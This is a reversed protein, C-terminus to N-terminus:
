HSEKSITYKKKPKENTKLFKLMCDTTTDFNTQKKIGTKKDTLERQVLGRKGIEKRVYISKQRSRVSAYHPLNNGSKLIWRVKILALTRYITNFSYVM